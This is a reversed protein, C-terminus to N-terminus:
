FLGGSSGPTFWIFRIWAEFKIVGLDTKINDEKRNM